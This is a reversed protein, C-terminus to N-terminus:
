NYDDTLMLIAMALLTTSWFLPSDFYASFHAAAMGTISGVVISCTAICSTRIGRRKLHQIFKPM